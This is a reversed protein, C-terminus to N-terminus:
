TPADLVAKSSRSAEPLRTSGYHNADGAYTTALRRRALTSTTPTPRADAVRNSGVTCRDGGVTCPTHASGTYTFPGATCTVDTTSSAKDITFNKSDNSGNHNADGAYTYSATATGAGVNNSYDPNPSLNLGGAGTVSVSCPPTHASGTYTFPM